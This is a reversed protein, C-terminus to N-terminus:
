VGVIGNSVRTVPIPQHPSPQHPTPQTFPPVSATFFVDPEEESSSTSDLTRKRKWESTERIVSMRQLYESKSVRSKLYQSFILQLFMRIWINLCVIHFTVLIRPVTRAKILLLSRMSIRRTAHKVGELYHPLQGQTIGKRM